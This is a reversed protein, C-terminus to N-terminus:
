AKEPEGLLIYIRVLQHQNYAGGVANKSVPGLAV